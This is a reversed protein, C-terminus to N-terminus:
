GYWFEEVPFGDIMKWHRRQSCDQDEIDSFVAGLVQLEVHCRRLLSNWNALDISDFRTPQETLNSTVRIQSWRLLTM